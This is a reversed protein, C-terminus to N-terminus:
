EEETVRSSGANKETDSASLTDVHLGYYERVKQEIECMVEPHEKM